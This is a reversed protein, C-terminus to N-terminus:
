RLVQVSGDPNISIIRSPKVYSSVEGGDVYLDIADGFYEQAQEITRAPALGEPNASPAVLPGTQQIIENLLGRDEIRYGISTGSRVLYKPASPSEVIISTPRDRYKRSYQAILTANDFAQSADSILHILPKHTRRDKLQYIKEVATQDNARALIGYITDTRLIVIGGRQLTSVIKEIMRLM